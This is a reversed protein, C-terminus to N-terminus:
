AQEAGARGRYSPYRNYKEIMARLKPRSRIGQVLGELREQIEDKTPAGVISSNVRQPQLFIYAESQFYNPLRYALVASVGLLALAPALAVIAYRRFAARIPTLLDALSKEGTDQYNNM